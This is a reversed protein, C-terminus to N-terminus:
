NELNSISIIQLKYKYRFEVFNGLFTYKVKHRLYEDWRWLIFLKIYLYTFIKLVIYSKEM